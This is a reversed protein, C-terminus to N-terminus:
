FIMKRTSRFRILCHVSFFREFIKHTEDEDGDEKKRNKDPHFQLAKRKFEANIQEKTNLEDCGLLEYLDQQYKKTLFDCCHKETFHAM